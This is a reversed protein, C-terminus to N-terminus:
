KRPMNASFQHMQDDSIIGDQVSKMVIYPRMLPSGFRYRIRRATGTRELISAREAESFNKLHQAYNPIDYLRNTIMQLPARVSAASFYGLEDVEATACALLVEKYINGPQSSKTADYYDKVISRQWQELASSIGSRVNSIDLSTSNRGLADKVSNLAILHTIYPLGQSLSTIVSKAKADSTMELRKLGNEVISSIENESMRPMPIQVLAREISIHGDLLQDVSDAVGIVIITVDIAYDSLGKITDSMLTATKKDTLRDFEDFVIILKAMSAAIALAQRVSSPTINEPLHQDFTITETKSEAGFGIEQKKRTYRLESFVKKWLSSFTDAGDCNVRQSVWGEPLITPLINAMSTKGVGREGFLIAHYGRQTAASFISALQEVRGSFLDRENVPSGPTFVTGATALKNKQEGPLM